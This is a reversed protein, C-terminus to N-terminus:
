RAAPGAFVTESRAAVDRGEVLNSVTEQRCCRAHMDFSNARRGPRGAIRVFGVHDGSVVRLGGLRRQGPQGTRHFHSATPFPRNCRCRFIGPLPRGLEGIMTRRLLWLGSVAYTGLFAKHTKGAWLSFAMAWHLRAAGGRADGRVRALMAGPRGRGAPDPALGAGAVSCFILGVVPRWRRPWSAWSSRWASPLDTVLLHTLTGRHRTSVSRGPPRRRRPLCSADVGHRDRGRFVMGGFTAMSRITSASSAIKGAAQDSSWVVTLAGLLSTLFLTRLAYVQWRRSATLWEYVFVPGPCAGALCARYGRPRDDSM